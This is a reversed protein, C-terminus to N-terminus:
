LHKTLMDSCLFCYLFSQCVLLIMFCSPLELTLNFRLMGVLKLVKLVPLQCPGHCFVWSVVWADNYWAIWGSHLSSAWWSGNTIIWAINDEGLCRMIIGLDSLIARCAPRIWTNAHTKNPLQILLGYHTKQWIKLTLSVVLACFHLVRPAHELKIAWSQIWQWMTFVIIRM